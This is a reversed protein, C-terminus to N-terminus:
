RPGGLLWPLGPFYICCSGKNYPLELKAKEFCECYHHDYDFKPCPPCRDVSDGRMQSEGNSFLTILLVLAIILNSKM